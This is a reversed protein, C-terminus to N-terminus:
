SHTPSQNLGYSLLDLVFYVESLNRTNCIIPYTCYTLPSSIDCLSILPIGKKACLSGIAGLGSQASSMGKGKKGKTFVLNALDSLKSKAPNIMLVGCLNEPNTGPSTLSLNKRTHFDGKKVGKQLSLSEMPISARSTLYSIAEKTTKPLIVLSPLPKIRAISLSLLSLYNNQGEATDLNPLNDLIVLLEMPNTSDKKALSVKRLYNLVRRIGQLTKQNNVIPVGSRYGLLSDYNHPHVGLNGLSERLDANTSPGFIVKSDGEYVGKEKYLSKALPMPRLSRLNKIKRKYVSDTEMRYDHLESPLTKESLSISIGRGVKLRNQPTLHPSRLKGSTFSPEQSITKKSSKTSEAFSGSEKLGKIARKVLSLNEAKNTGSIGNGLAPTRNKLLSLKLKRKEGLIPFNQKKDDSRQLFSSKSSVEKNPLINPILKISSLSKKKSTNFVKSKLNKAPSNLEATKVRLSDNVVSKKTNLGQSGSAKLKTKVRLRKNFSTGELRRSLLSDEGENGRKLSLGKKGKDSGVWIGKSTSFSSAKENLSLFTKDGKNSVIKKIVQSIASVPKRSLPKERFLDGLLIKKTLSLSETKNLDNVLM